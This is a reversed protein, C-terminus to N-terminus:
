AHLHLTEAGGVGALVVRESDDGGGLILTVEYTDTGTRHLDALVGTSHRLDVVRGRVDELRLSDITTSRPLDHPVSM